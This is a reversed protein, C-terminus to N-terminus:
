CERGVLGLDEDLLTSVKGALRCLSTPNTHRGFPWRYPIIATSM